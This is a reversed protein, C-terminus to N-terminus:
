CVPLIQSCDALTLLSPMAKRPIHQAKVIEKTCYTLCSLVRNNESLTMELFAHWSDVRYVLGNMELPVIGCAMRTVFHLMPM